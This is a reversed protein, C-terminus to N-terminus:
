HYKPTDDDQKGKQGEIVQFPYNKHKKSSIGSSNKKIGSVKEMTKLSPKVKPYAKSRKPQYFRFLLFIVIFVVVPILLGKLLIFGELVIDSLLGLAALVIVTWTVFSQIKM